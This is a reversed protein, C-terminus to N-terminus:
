SRRRVLLPFLALILVGPGHGHGPGPGASACGCGGPKDSEEPLDPGAQTPLETHYNGTNQADHHISAWQVDQDAHGDTTWAFLHGERTTVVVELYGDGTIDGVAPSGLIWGGTFHPWGEALEGDKDWAYILYGASGYIVEPVGDGSVDAIAPAELFQIDELQRPWGEFVKGTAGSWAVIAHQFDFHSIMGLSAIWLAGVGGMVPDPVGDGDLDGFAPNNVMQVISPVDVNHGAGWDSAVYSVEMHTTGDHSLIDTQGLMVPNLMELDGDGDLDAAAMSAPHGQGILPLLASENILGVDQRPWGPEHTGTAADFLYSAVYQGDNVPENTGLALELEGDGDFDGVTPSTLARHGHVGCMLDEYDWLATGPYCLEIPYPGWHEGSGDFVYLRGDLGTDVIELAGDGDLDVLTPAGAFGQDYSHYRDFEEPERGLSWAPFGSVRSGDLEWAYMGGRGSAGVVEAVGDGDIDGVAVSAIFADGSDMQVAGSAFADADPHLDEIPDILVPWGDVATGDGQLALVTGDATSILIEFDGDGDMDALIPSSEGSTGMDLPFGALIDPDGDMFATKRMEGVRGKGDTVRLRVTFAPRNVRELREIIGEFQNPEELAPFPHDSLDITALTGDFAGRESGSDVVSWDEPEHGFGIELAWDYRETRASIRADIKVSSSTLKDLPAFWAPSDIAVSPPIEGAAVMEVARAANARGYGHFADWGKKSPYARSIANEKDSLWVDDATQILIQYVEGASLSLGSQWAASHVLGVLGSTVAVAGTACAPSAAVLTM